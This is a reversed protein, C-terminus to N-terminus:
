RTPKQWWGASEFEPQHQGSWWSGPLLLVPKDKDFRDALQWDLLSQWAQIRNAKETVEHGNVQAEFEVIDAVGEGIQAEAIQRVDRVKGVFSTGMTHMNVVVEESLRRRTAAGKKAPRSRGLETTTYKAHEDIAKKVLEQARDLFSDANWTSHMDDVLQSLLNDVHTKAQRSDQKSRAPKVINTFLHRVIERVEKVDDAGVGRLKMIKLLDALSDWVIGGALSRRCFEVPSADSKQKREAKSTMDDSGKDDSTENGREAQFKALTKKLEIWEALVTPSREFKKVNAKCRRETSPLELGKWDVLNLYEQMLFQTIRHLGQANPVRVRVRQEGTSTASLRLQPPLDQYAKSSFGVVTRPLDEVSGFGAGKLIPIGKKMTEESTWLLNWVQVDLGWVTPETDVRSRGIKEIRTKCKRISRTATAWSMKEPVLVSALKKDMKEAM